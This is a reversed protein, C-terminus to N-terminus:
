SLGPAKSCTVRGDELPPVTMGSPFTQGEPLWPLEVWTAAEVTIAWHVNALFSPGLSFNHPSLEVGHRRALSAIATAPTLGGCKVLDPQLIDVAGSALLREFAVLSFENEGAAIPIDTAARVRALAGHDQQPYLPEELWTLGAGALRRAAEFANQEDGPASMDVMLTVDSGLEARTALIVDPDSEHLKVATIGTRLARRAEACIADVDGLWHLSAYVPLAQHVAPGLLQSVPVHRRKGLLDWLALDIGSIATSVIGEPGYQATAKVLHGWLDAPDESAAGLCLPALVFDIMSAIPRVPSGPDSEPQYTGWWTEGTGILGDETTVHVLLQPNSRDLLIETRVETITTGTGAMALSNWLAPGPSYNPWM